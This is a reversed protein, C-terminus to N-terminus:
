KSAKRIAKILDAKKLKTCGKVGLNQAIKRLEPVTQKFFEPHDVNRKVGSVVAALRRKEQEHAQKESKTLIDPYKAKLAAEQAAERARARESGGGRLRAWLSPKVAKQPAPAVVPKREVVPRLNKRADLRRQKSAGVHKALAAQNRRSREVVREKKIRKQKESISSM